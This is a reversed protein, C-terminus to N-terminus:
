GNAATLWAAANAPLSRSGLDASSVAIEGWASPLEFSESGTVVVCAALDRRFALVDSRGGTDLWEVAGLPDPFFLRRQALAARYLQLCSTADEQQSAVAYKGFWDPQPLWPPASTGAPSFGFSSRINQDWPLPVRCGDRGIETGGSRFFIPDQRVDDPLEYVEPLGLEEGQYLYVSGPLALLLLIAARARRQGLELDVEGRSRALQLPDASSGAPAQINVRGYRSVTRPLDHNSLTWTVVAGTAEMQALGHRVATQMAEADWPQILLDFFFAQQLEDPRLYDALQRVEPVWVEGVFTLERMPAYSDSLARWSRYVEHVEPQNWMHENYGFMGNEDCPWDLLEQHKFMGHAVDIRFGDVGRDFWFKLVEDFLTPVDANRWNLDPQSPDFIHLYWQGPRGDAELVRTWAPGGFVSPWNNPPLADDPGTGECFVFRAREPSGPGARLAAVFWPHASSCHNAVLDLLVKLGRGHAEEVLADFAALDGYAPEVGFYDAIDYGHDRQPSPYHPNLWIGDAGLQHIHDLHSRLGALDGIGDGNGDAFSRVYVQYIVADRWWLSPM